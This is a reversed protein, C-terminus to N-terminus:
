IPKKLEIGVILAGRKLYNGRLEKSIDAHMTLDAVDIWRTEDFYKKKPDLFKVKIRIANLTKIEVIFLKEIDM